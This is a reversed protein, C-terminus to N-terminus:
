RLQHKVLKSTLTPNQEVIWEVLSGQYSAVPPTDIRLCQNLYADMALGLAILKDELKRAKTM